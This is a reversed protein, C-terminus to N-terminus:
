LNKYTINNSKLFDGVSKLQALTGSIEFQAIFIKEAPKVPEQKVEVPAAIPKAVPAAVPTVAPKVEAQQAELIRVDVEAIFKMFEDREINEVKSFEISVSDDGTWHYSKTLDSYTFGKARLATTRKATEIAKIREREQKEAEKRERVSTIAKSANLGTKKYEALTEAPFDVSQILLIDDQVRNVFEACEEKYKKESTSLNVDIGTQSFQLFTLDINASSILESFYAEINAKKELKVNNEFAAIKDKLLEGAQKYKESIEANYVSEFEQYPAAVATKLAKRQNEFETFEKNLEARLEKLSKITDETAVQNELNLEQIRLTVSKGVEILQHQIVPVQVLQIQNNM